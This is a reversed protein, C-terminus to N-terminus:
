WMKKSITTTVLSAYIIGAYYRSYYMSQLTRCLALMIRLKEPIRVHTRWRVPRVQAVRTYLLQSYLHSYSIASLEEPTKRPEHLYDYKTSHTRIHRCAETRSTKHAGFGDTNFLFRLTRLLRPRPLLHLCEDDDEDDVFESGM